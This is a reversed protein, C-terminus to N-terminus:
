PKKDPVAIQQGKKKNQLGTLFTFIYTFFNFFLSAAFLIIILLGPMSGIATHRSDAAWNQIRESLILIFFNLALAFACGIVATIIKYHLKHSAKKGLWYGWWGSIIIGMIFAYGGDSITQILTLLWLLLLGGTILFAQTNACYDDKYRFLIFILLFTFVTGFTLVFMHPAIGPPKTIRIRLRNATISRYTNTIRSKSPINSLLSSQITWGEPQLIHVEINKISRRINAPTFMYDIYYNNHIGNGLRNVSPIVSYSVSLTNTGPKLATIYASNKIQQIYRHGYRDGAKLWKEPIFIKRTRGPSLKKNNLIIKCNTIESAYLRFIYKKLNQSTTINYIAKIHPRGNTTLPRIDFLLKQHIKKIADDNFILESAISGQFWVQPRSSFAQFSIAFFLLITIKFKM